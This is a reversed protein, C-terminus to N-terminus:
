IGLEKKLWGQIEETIAYMGNSPKEIPNTIAKQLLEGPIEDIKGATSTIDISGVKLLMLAPPECQSEIYFMYGSIERLKQRDEPKSQFRPEMVVRPTVDLKIKTLIDPRKKIDKLGLFAFDCRAEEDDM